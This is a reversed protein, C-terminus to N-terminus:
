LKLPERYSRSSYPKFVRSSQSHRSSSGVPELTNWHEMATGQPLQQVVLVSFKFDTTALMDGIVGLESCETWETIGLILESNPDHYRGVICLECHGILARIVRTTDVADTAFEEIFSIRDNGTHTSLFKNVLEADIDREPDDLNDPRRDATKRIWVLTISSHTHDTMRSCYALAERDDPGGIFLLTVRLLTIGLRIAQNEAVKERDVLIGVSCPAKQLVNQNVMRIAPSNAMVDGNFTVRKHYPVIVINAGKELSITCIDDHMSAYPAVSTFFEVAAASHNRTRFAHFANAIRDSTRSKSPKMGIPSPKGHVSSSGSLLVADARGKLETLTLVSVSIPRHRNPCTIDLLNILAPVDEENHVCVLMRLETHPDSHLISNTRYGLYRMSPDYLYCVLPTATGTVVLMTGLLLGLAQSTLMANEKLTIFVAMEIIGKCCMILSLSTADSVSFGVFVAPIFTGAFKTIYGLIIIFEMVAGATGTGVSFLDMDLGSVAFKAPLLVGTCFVDIKNVLNSGLPPGNPVAIGLMFTGLGAPQGLIESVLGCLLALVMIALFQTEKMPGNEPIRRNIHLIVPRVAVVVLALCAVTWVITLFISMRNFKKSLGLFGMILSAFYSCFDCVMSSSTAMRGVESNLLNLDALLSTIVPFTSIASMISIFILCHETVENVFIFHPLTYVVLGCLAYPVVFCSTGILIENKGARTVATADTNVGLIFLHFMFGLEGITELVMRGQIPFLLETFDESRGLVTRGILIGSILYATIMSQKLPRFLLFISRTILFIFIFQAFVLPLTYSLIDGGVWAGGQSNINDAYQCVMIESRHLGPVLGASSLRKSTSM